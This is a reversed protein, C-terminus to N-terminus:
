GGLAAYLLLTILNVGAFTQSRFLALPMMPAPSRGEEWLFAALLLVGAVLSTIVIPDRLGLVPWEILGFVASGLGAFALAAGRLDLCPSAEPDRSEIIHRMALLVTPLAILPNIFFIWRWTAHDVIFGGLVPGIATFIASFGAWTGIAKGREAEDF